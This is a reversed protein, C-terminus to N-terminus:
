YKAQWTGPAVFVLPTGRFLGNKLEHNYWVELFTPDKPSTVVEEERTQVTGGTALAGYFRPQGEILVNGATYLVGQLHVNSLEVPVRSGLSNSGEDPPSLASV